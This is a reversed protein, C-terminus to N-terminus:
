LQLFPNRKIFTKADYDNNDYYSCIIYYNNMISNFIENPIAYFKFIPSNKDANLFLPSLDRFWVSIVLM